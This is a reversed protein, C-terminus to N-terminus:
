KLDDINDKIEKADDILDKGQDIASNIENYNENVKEITDKTEDYLQKNENVEIDIQARVDLYFKYLYFGGAILGAILVLCCGAKLRSGLSKKQKVQVPQAQEAHIKEFDDRNSHKM